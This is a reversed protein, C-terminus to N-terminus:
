DPYADKYRKLFTVVMGRVCNQGVGFQTNNNVGTTIGTSYAWLVADYFYNTEKVDPFNMDRPTYEPANGSNAYVATRYLFTVIQERKCKANPSFTNSSTGTTIGNEYAWLVAKYFFKDETVDSFPNDGEPEPCGVARWLFTVVQGRTCNDNPSFKTGSTGTTIGNDFAWYVPDFFYKNSEAVDTFLVRVTRSSSITDSGVLSATITVLGAKKGTFYGSDDITGVSADSTSWTVSETPLLGDATFTDGSGSVVSAPGNIGFANTRWHAHITINYCGTVRSSYTIKSGGESQTYWGLFDHNEWEAEPTYITEFLYHVRSVTDCTGGNPDYFVTLNMKWRAYLTHSVSKTVTTSSTVLEGEDSDTYWGDFEFDGYVPVPLDGYASGQIVTKSSTSCIGGNANFYVTVETPTNKTWHAYFCTKGNKVATSSTIQTGGSVATYWGNFTYGTRTPNSPLSYNSGYKQRSVTYTGGTEPIFDTASTGDELQLEAMWVTAARDVYPHIWDNCSSATKNMNVTYKTWSTSLTVSRYSGEYGWRFYLKAGDVTSKAWFSMVMNKTDGVYGETGGNKGQTSTAFALDKGDSGASSNVIKLSNYGNHKNSSDVSITAVSTDRSMFQDTNLSSFDTNMFYNVGSYNNFFWTDYYTSSDSNVVSFNSSYYTDEYALPTVSSGDLSTYMCGQVIIKYIYSGVALNGFKVDNDLNAISYSETTLGSATAGIKQNGSSDYAGVTVKIIDSAASSVTGKISFGNGKILNGSPARVDSVEIDGHIIATYSSSTPTIDGAYCYGHYRANDYLVEYWYNGQSNLWLNTITVQEYQSVTAVNTSSPNTGAACPLSKITTNKNATGYGKSKYSQIRESVGTNLWHAYLTHNSTATVITSATVKTGGSASTYWGDFTYTDRYAKPLTGYASGSTVTMSSTSCTGGNANFYVTSTIPTSLTWHAFVNLNGNMVNTSSTIRTGGNAKTYWGDFTYGARTPAAPLSYGVNNVNYSNSTTQYKTKKEPVFDTATLEDELQIEALWVTGPSDIYVHLAGDFTVRKDMRLTYKKWDTTLEPTTTYNTEYGWRVNLKSGAKSSKAWFSLVYYKWDDGVWDGQNNAGMTTTIIDFDHGSSGASTNVVKLSNYGNHKNSSDVSITNVSTDRSMYRDTNLTVFDSDVIYNKGSYNYYCNLDYTANYCPRIFLAAYRNGDYNDYGTTSTMNRDVLKIYKGSQGGDVSYIKSTSSNNDRLMGVHYGYHQQAHEAITTNYTPYKDYFVIDGKRPAYKRDMFDKWTYAQCKYNLTGTNDTIFKFGSYASATSTFSFQRDRTMGAADFASSVCWACIGDQQKGVRDMMWKLAADRQSTVASEISADPDRSSQLDLEYDAETYDFPIKETVEIVDEETLEIFEEDEASVLHIHLGSSVIMASVLICLLFKKLKLLVRNFEKTHYNDM